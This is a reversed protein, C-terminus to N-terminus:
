GGPSHRTLWHWTATIMTGLVGIIGWKMVHRTIEENRQIRTKEEEIKLTLWDHHARHTSPEVTHEHQIARLVRDELEDMQEPTM